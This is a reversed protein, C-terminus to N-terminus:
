QGTQWTHLSHGHQRLWARAPQWDGYLRTVVAWFAPSHNAEILHAVEHACIYDFVSPPAMILRWSYRITNNHPSCSGWRSRTDGLSVRPPALGLTSAYRQTHSEARALAAKKLLSVIRRGYAAGVGGASIDGPAEYRAAGQGARVSLTVPFGDVTLRAGPAFIQSEPARSQQSQIWDTRTRAFAVAKEAHRLHPIVLVPEGSRLDLKLSIRRARPNVRLRVQVRDLDILDQDTYRPARAFM